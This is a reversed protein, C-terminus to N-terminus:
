SLSPFLHFQVPSIPYISSLPSNNTKPLADSKVTILSLFIYLKSTSSITREKSSTFIHSTSSFFISSLSNSVKCM